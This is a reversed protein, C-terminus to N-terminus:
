GWVASPRCLSVVFLTLVLLWSGRGGSWSRAVSTSLSVLGTVTGVFFCLTMKTLFSSMQLRDASFSQLLWLSLTGAVLTHLLDGRLCLENM